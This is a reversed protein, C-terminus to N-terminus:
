KQLITTKEFEVDLKPYEELRNKTYAYFDEISVDERKSQAFEEWAEWRMTSMEDRLKAIM